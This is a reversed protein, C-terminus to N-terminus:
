ARAHGFVRLISSTRSACRRCLASHRRRLEAILARLYVPSHLMQEPPSYSAFEDARQVHRAWGSHIIFAAKPQLTMWTSITEVDQALTSGYHPQVSIVDYQKDRLAMPWLTSDKVCPKGPNARIFSLNVGCDVHWQVDGSLRSPVTDWTLSNGILYVRQVVPEKADAAVWMAVVLIPILLWRGLHAKLM